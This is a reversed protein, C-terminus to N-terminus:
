AKPTTWQNRPRLWLTVCLVGTLAIDILFIWLAPSSWQVGEGFRYLQIAVAVPLAMLLATGLRVRGWDHEWAVSVMMMAGVSLYGCFARVTLPTFTWPAIQQLLAPTVFAAIAFGILVLGNAFLFARIAGPIPDAVAEEAPGSRRQHWWYLAAMIPPPLVYSALWVAFPTSGVSFRDWHMVTVLTMVATFGITPLMLVRLSRWTRVLLSPAIAAGAAVYFAGFLAATIDPKIPWSFNTASNKPDLFIALSATTAFFLEAVLWARLPWWVPLPTMTQAKM